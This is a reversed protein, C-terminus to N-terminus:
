EDDEVEKLDDPLILSNMNCIKKVIQMKKEKTMTEVLRARGSGIWKEINDKNKIFDERNSGWFMLYYERRMINQDLLELERIEREIWQARVKDTSEKLKKQLYARQLSTNVPFNMSIFKGDPSYLRYFKTVNYINYNLEDGQLNRRDSPIVNFIDMYTGDEYIFGEVQDDYFRIPLIDLTSKIPDQKKKKPTKEKKKNLLM